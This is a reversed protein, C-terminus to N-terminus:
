VQMKRIRAFRRLVRQLSPKQEISVFQGLSFQGRRCHPLDDTGSVLMWSPGLLRAPPGHLHKPLELMIRFLTYRNKSFIM